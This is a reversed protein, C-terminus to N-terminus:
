GDWGERRVTASREVRIYVLVAGAAIVGVAFGAIFAIGYLEPIACSNFAALAQALTPM